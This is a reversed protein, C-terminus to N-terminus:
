QIGHKLFYQVVREATHGDWYEPIKGKKVNGELIDNVKAIIIDTKLEVLQNTGELITIPRETNERLTLCPIGFFTSEEQIGGSDTLVFSSNMQLKMFDYYGVPELLLLNKMKKVMHDLGLKEINKRTRPHIPFVLKIKESIENFANLITTLGKEEDVNSPRHLTILAFEGKLLGNQDMITSKDALSRYEVLSDIMINGVFVIKEPSVGEHLLNEDGDRSPTFLLDSIADIVLRNIEEPMRRDHSRLGAELHAVPIHLKVAVLTCAMSSNVDGAVIVLDPHDNLCVVEYRELVRATQEGHSGSGVELYADPIPMQLEDFFFQSMKEDYHQGTHILKVDFENPFKRFEKYLPAMKMFNPRAGVILHIKKM